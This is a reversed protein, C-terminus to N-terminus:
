QREFEPRAYSELYGCSPCRFTGIPLRKAAPARTGSWFSKEPPGEVWCAVQTGSQTFDAVFGQDM